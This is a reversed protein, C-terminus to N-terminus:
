ARKNCNNYIKERLCRCDIANVFDPLEEGKRGQGERQGLRGPNNKSLTKEELNMIIIVHDSALGKEKDGDKGREERGKRPGEEKRKGRSM